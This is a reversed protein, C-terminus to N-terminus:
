LSGTIGQAWRSLGSYGDWRLVKLKIVCAFDEKGHLTVYACTTPILIHVCESSTIRDELSGAGKEWMGEMRNNKLSLACTHQAM